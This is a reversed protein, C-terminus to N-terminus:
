WRTSYTKLEQRLATENGGCLSDLLAHFRPGHNKHVTHCLEHLVIYDILRDPLKMLHLSLSIDNNGSCSGWRSRSNRITVKGCRLGTQAAWHATRLPLEKKAEERWAEEISRRVATQVSDSEYSLLMPYRVEINSGELRCNITRCDCPYLRLLHGRTSFGPGLIQPPRRSEIRKRTREIWETKTELFSWAQKESLGRPITLRVEANARVSITLRRARSSRNITIDGLQPHVRIESTSSAM